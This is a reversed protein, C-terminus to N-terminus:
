ITSNSSLVIVNPIPIKDLKRYIEANVEDTTEDKINKKENFLIKIIRKVLEIAKIGIMNIILPYKMIEEIPKNMKPYTLMYKVFLSSFQDINNFYFVRKVEFPMKFLGYICIKKIIIKYYRGDNYFMMPPDGPIEIDIKGWCYTLRKKLLGLWIRKVIKFHIKLKDKISKNIINKLKVMKCNKAGNAYDIIKIM